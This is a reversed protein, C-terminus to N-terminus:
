VSSSQLLFGQISAINFLHSGVLMRLILCFQKGIPLHQVDCFEIFRDLTTSGWGGRLEVSTRLSSSRTPALLSKSAKPMINASMMTSRPLASALALLIAINAALFLRSAM